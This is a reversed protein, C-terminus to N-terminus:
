HRILGELVKLIHDPVYPKNIVGSVGVSQLNNQLDTEVYGTAIVVRLNPQERKMQLFVQWGSVGPLGIDLLVVDINYKHRHFFEIASAGDSAAFVRYGQRLLIKQLLWLMPQEDEV